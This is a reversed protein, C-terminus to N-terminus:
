ARRGCFPWVRRDRARVVPRLRRAPARGGVEAPLAAGGRARRGGASAAQPVGAPGEPPRVERLRRRLQRAPEPLHVPALPGRAAAARLAGGEPPLAGPGLGGPRAGAPAGGGG